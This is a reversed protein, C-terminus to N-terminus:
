SQVSAPKTLDWGESECSEANEEGTLVYLASPRIGSGIRLLMSRRMM